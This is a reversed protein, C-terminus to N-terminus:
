QSVKEGPAITRIVGEIDNMVQNNWFRIIRYSLSELYKKREEDYEEQELQQGGRSLLPSLCTPQM